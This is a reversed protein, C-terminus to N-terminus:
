SRQFQALVYDAFITDLVSIGGAKFLTIGGARTEHKRPDVLLDGLEARVHSRTITKQKFPIMIDGYSTFAQEKSDVVLFSKKVLATDIERATPLAAGIANIHTGPHVVRGDFLPTPSSTALVLVDSKRALETASRAPKSIVRYNTSVRRAFAARNARHRSYVLITSFDRAELM